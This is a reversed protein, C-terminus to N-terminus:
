RASVVRPARAAPRVGAFLARAARQGHWRAASADLAITVGGASRAIREAGVLLAVTDSGEVIRAIRM